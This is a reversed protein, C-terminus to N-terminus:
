KKAELEVELFLPPGMWAMKRRESTRNWSVWSLSYGGGLDTGVQGSRATVVPSASLQM